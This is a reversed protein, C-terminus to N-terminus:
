ALEDVNEKSGGIISSIKDILLASLDLANDKTNKYSDPIVVNNTTYEVVYKDIDLDEEPILGNADLIITGSVVVYKNLVLNIDAFKHDNIKLVFELKSENLSLAAEVKYDTYTVVSEVESKNNAVSVVM